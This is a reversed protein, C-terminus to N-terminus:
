AEGHLRIQRRGQHDRSDGWAKHGQGEKARITDLACTESSVFYGHDNQGIVLPKFGHPDRAAYIKDGSLVIISYAGSLDDMSRAIAGAMGLSHYRALLSGVVEVDSTSQFVAGSMGLEDRLKAANNIQGDYTVAFMGGIYRFVFRSHMPM